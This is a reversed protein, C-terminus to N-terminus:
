CEHSLQVFLYLELDAHKVICCSWIHWSKQVYPMCLFSHVCESYTSECSRCNHLYACVYMREQICTHVHVSVHNLKYICEVIFRQYTYVHMWVYMTAQFSVGHDCSGNERWEELYTDAHYIYIYIYIYIYWFLTYVQEKYVCMRVYTSIHIHACVRRVYMCVYMVNMCVTYTYIYNHTRTYIWICAYVYLYM